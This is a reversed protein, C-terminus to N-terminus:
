NVAFDKYGKTTDFHEKTLQSETSLNLDKKSTIHM